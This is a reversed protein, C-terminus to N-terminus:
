GRVAEICMLGVYVEAMLLILILGECIYQLARTISM